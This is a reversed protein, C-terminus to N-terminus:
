LIKGNGNLPGASGSAAVGYAYIAHGKGDGLLVNSALNEDFGHNQDAFPLDSRLLNAVLTALLTGSTADGDKYIRVQIPNTNQPDRAWGAVECASSDALDLTGQVVQGNAMQIFSGIAVFLWALPIYRHVMTAMNKVLINCEWDVTSRSPHWITKPCSSVFPACIGHPLGPVTVWTEPLRRRFNPPQGPNSHQIGHAYQQGDEDRRKGRGQQGLRRVQHEAVALDDGHVRGRRGRLGQGDPGALDGSHAAIAGRGLPDAAVGLHDIKVAHEGNRAEDLAVSVEGAHAFEAHAQVQAFRPGPVLD